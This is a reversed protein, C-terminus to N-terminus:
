VSARANCAGFPLVSHGPISRTSHAFEQRAQSRCARQNGDITEGGYACGTQHHGRSIHRCLRLTTMVATMAAMVAAMVAPVMATMVATMVATVMPTVVPTMMATVMPVMAPMMVTVEEMTMGAPHVPM